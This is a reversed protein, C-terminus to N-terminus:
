FFRNGLAENKEIRGECEHYIRIETVCGLRSRNLHRRLSMFLYTLTVLFHWLGQGCDVM